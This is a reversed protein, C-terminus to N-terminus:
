RSPSAAGEDDRGTLLLVTVFGTAGIGMLLWGTTGIGGDTSTPLLAAAEPDDGFLAKVVAEATM